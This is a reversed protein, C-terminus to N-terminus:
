DNKFLNLQIYKKEFLKYQYGTYTIKKACVPGIGKQISDNDKLPRGCIRCKVKISM